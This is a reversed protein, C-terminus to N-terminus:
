LVLDGLGFIPLYFGIVSIGISLFTLGTTIVNVLARTLYGGQHALHVAAFTIAMVWYYWSNPLLMQTLAPLEAGAEAYITEFYGAIRTLLYQLIGFCISFASSTYLSYKPVLPDTLFPQFVLVYARSQEDTIRRYGIARKASTSSLFPM